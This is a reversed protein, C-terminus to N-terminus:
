LLPVANLAIRDVTGDMIKLMKADRMYKEVNYERSIGAGGM